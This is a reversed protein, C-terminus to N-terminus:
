VPQLLVDTGGVDLQGSVVEGLELVGGGPDLHLAPAVVFGGLPHGVELKGPRPPTRSATSVARPIIGGARSRVNVKAIPAPWAMSDGVPCASIVSSTGRFSNAAAVRSSMILTLTARAAPGGKGADDNGAPTHHGCARHPRQQRQYRATLQAQLRVAVPQEKRRESDAGHETGQAQPPDPLM